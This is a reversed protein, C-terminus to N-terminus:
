SKKVFFGGASKSFDFDLVPSPEAASAMSACLVSALGSGFLGIISRKM